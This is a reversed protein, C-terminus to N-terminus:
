NGRKNTNHRLWLEANTHGGGPRSLTKKHRLKLGGTEGTTRVKKMEENRQLLQPCRWRKSRARQSFIHSIYATMQLSEDTSSCESLHQCSFTMLFHLTVGTVKLLFPSWSFILKILLFTEQPETRDRLPWTGTKLSQM